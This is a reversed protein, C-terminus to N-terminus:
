LKEEEKEKPPPPFLWKAVIIFIGIVTATTTTIFAILINDSLNFRTCNIRCDPNNINDASYGTLFVFLAVVVLWGVIMYFLKPIYDRRLEYITKWHTSEDEFRDNKLKNQRLQEDVLEYNNGEQQLQQAQITPETPVPATVGTLIENLAEASTKTM